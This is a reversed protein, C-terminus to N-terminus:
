KYAFVGIFYFIEYTISLVKNVFTFFWISSTFNLNNYSNMLIAYDQAMPKATIPTIPYKIFNTNIGILLM